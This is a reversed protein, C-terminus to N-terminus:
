KKQPPRAGFWWVVCTTACYLITAAIQVQLELLQTATIAAGMAELRADVMRYMMTTVVILYLTLGPRIMGRTFDVFAFMFRILSAMFGRGGLASPPLYTAKDHDYSAVMAKAYAAEEDAQAKRDAIAEDAEARREARASEINALAQANAHNLRLVELDQSKSKMDFYRQLLVGLLGTAGGSLVGTILTGLISAIM